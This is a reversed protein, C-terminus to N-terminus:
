VFRTQYLKPHVASVANKDRRLFKTKFCNETRKTIDWNQLYDIVGLHYAETGDISFFVNRGHSESTDVDIPVM